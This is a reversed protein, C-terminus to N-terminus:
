FLFELTNTGLIKSIAKILIAQFLLNINGLLLLFYTSKEIFFFFFLGNLLGLKLRFDLVRHRSQTKVHKGKFSYRKIDTEINGTGAGLQLADSRTWSRISPHVGLGRFQPTRLRLGHVVMSTGGAKNQSENENSANSFTLTDTVNSKVYYM